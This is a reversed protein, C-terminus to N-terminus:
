LSPVGFLFVSLQTGENQANQVRFVCVPANDASM